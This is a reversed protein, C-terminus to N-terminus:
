PGPAAGRYKPLLSTHLNICGLRPLNLLHQSIIEGYAVVVFLDAHFRSLEETFEQTSAKEPHFIPINSCNEVAYEKVASFMPKNSRGKPKDPKTVIAVIEIDHSLLYALVDSSFAPTGFYIIKM